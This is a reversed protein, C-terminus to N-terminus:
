RWAARTQPTIPSAEASRCRWGCTRCGACCRRSPSRPRWGPWRRGLFDHIGQGFGLHRNDARGVDLRDPDRFVAADRNASGLAAFVLGGRPIAVGGLESDERAYRETALFVPVTDRLLDEVATGLLAPDREGRVRSSPNPVSPVFKQDHLYDIIPGHHVSAPRPHAILWRIVPIWFEDREFGTGIRTTPISRALREDGGLGLVQAYRFAAPIDLGQPARLFHHAMRKTLPIPLDGATRISEGRGIRKFWNQHRVAESTLGAFWAADLFAPVDYRALRHRAPSGFQEDPGAEPPEWAEPPRLWDRWHASLALLAETFRTAQRGGLLDTREWSLFVLPRLIKAEPPM